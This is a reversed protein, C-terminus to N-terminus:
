HGTALCNQVWAAPKPTGDANPMQCYANWDFAGGDGAAATDDGPAGSGAPASSGPLNTPNAPPSAPPTAAQQLPVPPPETGTLWPDILATISKHKYQDPIQGREYVAAGNPDGTPIDALLSDPVGGYFVVRAGGAKDASPLGAIIAGAWDGHAALYPMCFRNNSESGGPPVYDHLTMCGDSPAYQNAWGAGTLRASGWNSNGDAASWTLLARGNGSDVQPYNIFYVYGRAQLTAIFSADVTPMATVRCAKEHIVTCPQGGVCWGADLEYPSANQKLFDASPNNTAVTPQGPSTTFTRAAITLVGLPAQSGASCDFAYRSVDFFENGDAGLGHKGDFGATRFGTFNEPINLLVDPPFLGDFHPNPLSQAGAQTAAAAFGLALIIGTLRVDRM